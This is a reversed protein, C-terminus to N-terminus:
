PSARGFIRHTDRIRHAIRAFSERDGHCLSDSRAGALLDAVQLFPEGKDRHSIRFSSPVIGQRRLRRLVQHDKEDLIRFDQRQGSRTELVARRVGESSLRRLAAEVMKARVHHESYSTDAVARATEFLYGDWGDLSAIGEIAEIRQRRSIRRFHLPVGIQQSMRGLDDLTSVDGDLVVVAALVYHNLEHDDVRRTKPNRMPKRSEDLYAVLDPMM